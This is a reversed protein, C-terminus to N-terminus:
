HMQSVTIDSTAYYTKGSLKVSAQIKGQTGSAFDIYGVLGTDSLTLLEPNLNTWTIDLGDPISKATLQVTAGSALGTNGITASTPSVSVGGIVDGYWGLTRIINFLEMDDGSTADTTANANSDIDLGVFTQGIENDSLLVDGSQVCIPMLLDSSFYRLRSIYIDLIHYGNVDNPGKQVISTVILQTDGNYTITINNTFGPSSGHATEEGVCQTTTVTSTSSTGKIISLSSADYVVPPQIYIMGNGHFLTATQFTVYITTGSSISAMDDLIFTQTLSIPTTEVVAGGLNYSDSSYLQNKEMDVMRTKDVKQSFASIDDPTLIEFTNILDVNDSSPDILIRSYGTENRGIRTQSGFTAMNTYTGGITDVMNFDLSDNDLTMMPLLGNRLSIGDTNMLINQGSPNAIFSTEPSLTVHVGAGYTASANGEFWFYQTSDSYLDSFANLDLSGITTAM